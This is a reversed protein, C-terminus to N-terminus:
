SKALSCWTKAATAASLAAMLSKSTGADIDIGPPWKFLVRRTWEAVATETDGSAALESESQADCEITGDCVTVMEDSMM